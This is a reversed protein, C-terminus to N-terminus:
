GEGLGIPSPARMVIRTFLRDYVPDRPYKGTLPDCNTAFAEDLKKWDADTLVKEAEPIVVTEELRMHELYFDLYRNTAQEFVERRSEGLLEWALLLYQIERVSAEGNAHDKDLRAIVEQLHPARKAVPPFLLETEKTHHLRDSFEDIYFLMARLVDFFNEPEKGPGHRVMMRLSQLMAALAAHENHIIRISEHSM